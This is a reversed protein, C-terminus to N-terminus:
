IRKKFFGPIVKKLIKDVKKLIKCSVNKMYQRKKRKSRDDIWHVVNGEGRWGKINKIIKETFDLGYEMAGLVVVDIYNQTIPCEKTPKLANHSVIYFHITCKYDPLKYGCLPKFCCKKNPDYKIKIRKYGNERKDFDKINRYIPALVGHINHSKSKSKKIALFSYEGHKSKPFCVWERRFGASKKLVVPISKGINSKGTHSISKNNILSGYGFLFDTPKRSNKRTKNKNVKNSKKTKM